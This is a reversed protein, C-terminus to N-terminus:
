CVGAESLVSHQTYTVCLASDTLTVPVIHPCSEAPMQPAFCCPASGWCEKLFVEGFGISPCQVASSQSCKIASGLGLALVHPEGSIIKQNGSFFVIWPIVTRGPPMQGHEFRCSSRQGALQIGISLHSGLARWPGGLAVTLAFLFAVVTEM